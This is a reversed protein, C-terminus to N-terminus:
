GDTDDASEGNKKKKKMLFGVSFVFPRQENGSEDFFNYKASWKMHNGLEINFKM